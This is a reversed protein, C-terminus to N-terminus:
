RDIIQLTLKDEKTLAAVLLQYCKLYAAQSNELEYKGQNEKYATGIIISGASDAATKGIHIYAYPSGTIGKVWLMGKHVQKFRITYTQHLGGKDRLGLTYNGANAYKKLAGGTGELSFGVEVNDIFVKGLAVQENRVFREIRMFAATSSSPQSVSTATTTTTPTITPTTVTPTVVPPSIHEDKEGQWDPKSIVTHIDTATHHKKGGFLSSFFRSLASFFGM